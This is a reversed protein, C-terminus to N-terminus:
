GFVNYAAHMPAHEHLIEVEEFPLGAFSLCLVVDEWQEWVGLPEGTAIEVVTFSPSYVPLGRVHESREWARRACPECRSAGFTPNAGCHTCRQRARREAYRTRASENKRDRFRDDLM